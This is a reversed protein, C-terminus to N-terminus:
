TATATFTTVMRYVHGSGVRTDANEITQKFYPYNDITGANGSYLPQSAGTLTVWTSSDSGVQFSDTLVKGGGVYAAGNWEVMKGVSPKADTLDDSVGIAWPANSGVTVKVSNSTTNVNDGVIMDGFSHSGTVTLSLSLAPNGSVEATGTDAAMVAPVIVLISLLVSFLILNKKMMNMMM